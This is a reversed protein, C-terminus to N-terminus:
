VLCQSTVYYGLEIFILIFAQNLSFMVYCFLVDSECNWWHFNFNAFYIQWVKIVAFTYIGDEAAMYQLKFEKNIIRYSVIACTDMFNFNFYAVKREDTTRWGYLSKRRLFLGTLASVILEMM